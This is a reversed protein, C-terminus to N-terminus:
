VCRCSVYRQRSSDRRCHALHTNIHYKRLVVVRMRTHTFRSSFPYSECAPNEIAHNRESFKSVTSGLDPQINSAKDNRRHSRTVLIAVVLLLLLVAVAAGIGISLAMTGSGDSSSEQNAIDIVPTPAATAVAPSRADLAASFHVESGLGGADGFATYAAATATARDSGASERATLVAMAATFAEDQLSAFTPVAATAFSTASCDFPAVYDAAVAGSPGRIPQNPEGLTAGFGSHAGARSFWNEIVSGCGSSTTNYMGGPHVIFWESTIRYVAGTSSCTRGSFIAYYCEATDGDIVASRVMAADWAALSGVPVSPQSLTSALPDCMAPDDCPSPATSADVVESADVCMSSASPCYGTQNCTLACVSGVAVSDCLLNRTSGYFNIQTDDQSQFSACSLSGTNTDVCPPDEIPLGTANGVAGVPVWMCRAPCTGSSAFTSCAPNSPYIETSPSTANASSVKQYYTM